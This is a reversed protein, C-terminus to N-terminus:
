PCSWVIAAVVGAVGLFKSQCFVEKVVISYHSNPITLLSLGM